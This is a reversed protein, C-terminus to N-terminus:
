SLLTINDKELNILAFYSTRNEDKFTKNHSVTLLQVKGDGKFDGFYYDRSIPSTFEDDRVIGELLINNSYSSLTGNPLVSYVTIKLRTKGSVIGNFNVKVIEDVGDGNVDVATITQFGAETTIHLVESFFSLGPAILIVQDPQYTSGFEYWVNVVWNGLKREKRKTIDYTSYMGPFTILGDNFKNKMLKGRVYVPKASEPYYNELFLTADKEPYGENQGYISGYEFTLPNLSSAGVSCDLRTLLNVGDQLTHELTYTRLEAGNNLTEIKSLLRDQSIILDGSYAPTVDTRNSYTFSIRAPLTAQLRSGYRISSIYYNNGSTIYDFDIRYGKVDVISTLPYVM